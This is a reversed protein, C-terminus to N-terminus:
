QQNGACCAAREVIRINRIVSIIVDIKRQPNPHNLPSSHTDILSIGHYILGCTRPTKHHHRPTTTNHHKNDLHQPTATDHDNHPTTTTTTNHHQPTTTNHHPTARNPPPQHALPVIQPASMPPPPTHPSCCLPPRQNRQPNTKTTDPRSALHSAQKRPPKSTLTAGLHLRCVYVTIHPSTSPCLLPQLRLSHWRVCLYTHKTRRPAVSTSSQRM